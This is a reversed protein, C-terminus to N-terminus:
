APAPEPASATTTELRALEERAEALERRMGLREFLDIAETLAVHAAPINGTKYYQITTPAVGIESGLEDEVLPATKGAVTVISGIGAKLLRGFAENRM